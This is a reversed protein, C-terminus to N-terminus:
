GSPDGFPSKPAIESGDLLTNKFNAVCLSLRISSPCKIDSRTRIIIDIATNRLHDSVELALARDMQSPNVAFSLAIEHSLM